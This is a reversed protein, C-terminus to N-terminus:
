SQTSMGKNIEGKVPNPLLVPASSNKVEYTQLINTTVSSTQELVLYKLFCAISM